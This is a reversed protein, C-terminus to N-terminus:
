PSPAPSPPPVPLWDPRLTRTFYEVRAGYDTVAKANINNYLTAIKRTTRDNPALREAIRKLMFAGADFNKAPDYMDEESFLDPWYSVNINMPRISKNAGVWELPEDYWGHTTEMVAISLILVQPVAFRSASASIHQPWAPFNNTLAALIGSENWPEEASASYDDEIWFNYPIDYIMSAKRSIKARVFATQNGQFPIDRRFSDGLPIDRYDHHSTGIRPKVDLNYTNIGHKQTQWIEVEGGSDALANARGLRRLPAAFPIPAADREYGPEVMVVADACECKQIIQGFELNSDYTIGFAVM